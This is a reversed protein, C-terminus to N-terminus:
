KAAATKVLAVYKSPDKKVDPLCHDCCVKILTDQHVYDVADGMSGLAEGSIVCTDLPYNMSQAKSIAAETMQDLGETAGQVAAGASKEATEMAGDLVGTLQNETSGGENSEHPHDHDGDHDHGAHEHEGGCGSLWLSSSIGMVVAFMVILKKKM